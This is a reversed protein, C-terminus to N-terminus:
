IRATEAVLGAVVRALAEQRDAGEAMAAHFTALQRDASTGDALIRRAGLIEEVCGLAVADEHVLALVEEVLDGFPVLVGRGLDFLSGGLGYRQARWRNEELLFVPYTRWSLNSRRLRYLMRTICAFLAAITIADDLRTCVDTIRMELTPYRASPRLDWWIKSADEIVGGSVLVDVTRQYEDWGSFRGPMGTRPMERFIALRWCKLGTDEGEWFPSSTSLALLHPLFYRLQNMLDVRLEDDGIGIHVHMGCVVLRRGVGALDEALRQYRPRDTHIPASTRQFPHTSAALPALGHRDAATVIGSRLRVLEARVEAFTACPRTGIEIQSRLFEPSVQHGLLAECDTLFAAPVENALALTAKDVLHYEEEIGITFQPASTLVRGRRNSMRPRIPM